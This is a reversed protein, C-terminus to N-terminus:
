PYAETYVSGVPQKLDDAGILNYCDAAPYGKGTFWAYRVVRGDSKYLEINRKALDPNCTSFETIWVKKPADSYGELAKFLSDVIVLGNQGTYDHVAAVDPKRLGMQQIERYFEKLWPWGQLYDIHSVAPGVIKCKPCERLVAKYIYAAQRPTRDCQWGDVDGGRLDPENLFLLYGSYGDPLKALADFYNYVAPYSLAPYQDCWFFPIYSANGLKPFPYKLGYDYFWQIGLDIAQEDTLRGYASALGQLTPSESSSQVLPFFKRYIVATPTPEAILQEISVDLKDNTDSCSSLSLLLLVATLFFALRRVSTTM